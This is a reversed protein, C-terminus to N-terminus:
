LTYTYMMEGDNGRFTKQFGAKQFCRISAHNKPFIGACLDTANSLLTKAERILQRLVTTGIGKNQHEPSVILCLAAKKDKIEAGVFAIIEGNQYVSYLLYDDRSSVACYYAMWDDISVWRQVEPAESWIQFLRMDDAASKKFIFM